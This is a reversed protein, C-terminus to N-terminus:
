AGKHEQDPLRIKQLAPPDPQRLGTPEVWGSVHPSFQSLENTNFSNTPSVSRTREDM